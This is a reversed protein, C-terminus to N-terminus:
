GGGIATIIEVKDDECLQYEKYKSKPIIKKNIEVAIYKSKIDNLLLLEEITINEQVENMANNLIINM